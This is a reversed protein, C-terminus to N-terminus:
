NTIKDMNLVQMQRCLVCGDEGLLEEGNIGKDKGRKSERIM